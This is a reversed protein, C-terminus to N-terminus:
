FFVLPCCYCLVILLESRTRAHALARCSPRDPLPVFTRPVFYSASLYRGHSTGSYLVLVHSLTNRVTCYLYLVDDTGMTRFKDLVLPKIRPWTQVLEFYHEPIVTRPIDQAAIVPYLVRCLIETYM